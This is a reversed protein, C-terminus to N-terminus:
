RRGRRATPARGGLDELRDDVDYAGPDAMAVRTFLDRARPVDGSREFLDALVYWQRVHREAPNRVRRDVGADVLLAVAQDLKGRDALMSAMVIRAESLVEPAPSAARIEDFLKAVNRPHGLARECDMVAALHTVDGTLEAHVRLNAVAARWRGARYNALGAVERVGAVAPAVEAVPAILRAADLYRGRQYAEVAEATRTVLRERQLATHGVAAARVATVLDGPLEARPRPSRTPATAEAREPAPDRVWQSPAPPAAQPRHADFEGSSPSRVERAGRRAVGGWASPM